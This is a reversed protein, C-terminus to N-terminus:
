ARWSRKRKSDEEWWKFAWRFDMCESQTTCRTRALKSQTTPRLNLHYNTSHKTSTPLLFYGQLIISSGNSNTLNPISAYIPQYQVLNFLFTYGCAKWGQKMGGHPVAPLSNPVTLVFDLGEANWMEFWRARYDERKAILGLYEEVSKEYWNEVLGAYVEDKRVHRIYWAYLRKVWRPLAFMIRAQQVGLDNWEGYRMPRTVIKAGDAM